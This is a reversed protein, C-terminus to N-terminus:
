RMRFGGQFVVETITVVLFILSIVANLRFFANQIWNLSRRRAIWHELVLCGLILFWGVLYALRFRCLLGFGLLLGCMVMHALFAATLANRPGWAVVLSHLGHQRDFEHDQLAYIIDFGVLWLVVALALVAMRLLDLPSVQPGTVALWAGIPALALAVGLYVHTYDTFRKTLSYFCIVFLAVPSLIFCLPNLLWSVAVLGAGSLGWLLWASWLQIEGTPLHRNATRPNLADWKRDMLRNFAMACTRACVMAALILLFTRGGPWGRQDRAAVVMAALAFPLAFITHSFRVFSLWTKILTFM